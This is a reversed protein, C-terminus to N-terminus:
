RQSDVVIELKQVACVFPCKRPVFLSRIFSALLVHYTATEEEELARRMNGSNNTFNLCRWGALETWGSVEIELAPLDGLQVWSLVLARWREKESLVASGVVLRVNCEGDVRCHDTNKTSFVSSYNSHSQNEM